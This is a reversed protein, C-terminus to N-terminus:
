IKEEHIKFGYRESQVILNVTDKLDFIIPSNWHTTNYVHCQSSTTLILHNFGLSMKVVRDRFNLEEIVENTNVDSVKLHTAEDLLAEINKWNLRRSSFTLIFSRAYNANKEGKLLIDLVSREMEV